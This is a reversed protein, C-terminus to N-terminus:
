IEMEMKSNRLYLELTIRGSFSFLLKANAWLQVCWRAAYKGV